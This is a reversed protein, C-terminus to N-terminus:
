LRTKFSKGELSIGIPLPHKVYQKEIGWFCGDKVGSNDPCARGEISPFWDQNLNENIVEFVDSEKM